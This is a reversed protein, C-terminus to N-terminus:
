FETGQIFAHQGPIFSSLIICALVDAIFWFLHCLKALNVHFSISHSRRACHCCKEATDPISKSKLDILTPFYKPKLLCLGEERFFYELKSRQKMCKLHHPVEWATWRSDALVACWWCANLATICSCLEMQLILPHFFTRLLFCESGCQYSVFYASPSYLGKASDMKFFRKDAAPFAMYSFPVMCFMMLVFFM